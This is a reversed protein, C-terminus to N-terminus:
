PSEVVDRDGLMFNWMEPDLPVDAHPIPHVTTHGSRPHLMFRAGHLLAQHDSASSEYVVMAIGREAIYGLLLELATRAAQPDPGPRLDLLYAGQKGWEIPTTLAPRGEHEVTVVTVNAAAPDLYKWRWYSADAVPTVLPAEVPGTVLADLATEDVERVTFGPATQRTKAKRAAAALRFVWGRLGPVPRARLLAIRRRLPVEFVVGRRNQAAGPHQNPFGFLFSAGAEM